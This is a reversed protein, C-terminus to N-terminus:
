QFQAINFCALHSTWPDLNLYIFLKKAAFLLENFTPNGIDM